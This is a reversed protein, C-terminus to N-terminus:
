AELDVLLRRLKPHAALLKDVANMSLCVNHSFDLVDLVVRIVIDFVKQGSDSLPLQSLDVM